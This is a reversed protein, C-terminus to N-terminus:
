NGNLMREFFSVHVITFNLQHAIHPELSAGGSNRWGDLKCVTDCDLMQRIDEKLLGEWTDDEALIEHPSVVEFGLGRLLATAASFAPFNNDPIGSMPGSIYIKKM